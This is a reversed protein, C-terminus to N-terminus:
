LAPSAVRETVLTVGEGVAMAAAVIVYLWVGWVRSGYPFGIEPGSAAVFAMYLVAAVMGLLWLLLLWQSRGTRRLLAVLTMVVPAFPMLLVPLIFPPGGGVGAVGGLVSWGFAVVGLVIQAGQQWGSVARGCFNGELRVNPPTCEFQPLVYSLRFNWPGLLAVAVLGLLVARWVRKNEYLWSM